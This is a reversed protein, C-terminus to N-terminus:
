LKSKFEILLSCSTTFIYWYQFDLNKFEFSSMNVPSYFNLSSEQHTLALKSNQDATKPSVYSQALTGGEMCM